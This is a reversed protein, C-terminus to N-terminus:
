RVQGLHVEVTDVYGASIILRFISQRFGVRRALGSYHGAPIGSLRVTGDTGSTDSRIPDRWWDNPFLQVEVRPQPRGTGDDARVVLGGLGQQRLTPVPQRAPLIRPPLGPDFVGEADAHVVPSGAVRCAAAFLVAAFFRFRPHLPHLHHPSMARRERLPENLSQRSVRAVKALAAVTLGYDRMFDERLM